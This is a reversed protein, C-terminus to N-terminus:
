TTCGAPYKPFIRFVQSIQFVDKKLACIQSFDSNKKPFYPFKLFDQDIECLWFFSQFIRLFKNKKSLIQSIKFPKWFNQYFKLILSRPFAKKSLKAYEPYWELIITNTPIQMIKQNNNCTADFLKSFNLTLEYDSFYFSWCYFFLM